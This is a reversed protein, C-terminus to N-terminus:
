IQQIKKNDDNEQICPAGNPLVDGGTVRIDFEVSKKHLVTFWTEMMGEMNSNTSEIFSVM